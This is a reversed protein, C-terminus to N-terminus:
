DLNPVVMPRAGRTDIRIAGGFTAVLAAHLAPVDFAADAIVRGARLLLVRDAHLALPLDHLVTVVTHSRGLRRCLRALAVQHPPDLHTTPEDLLLVPAETALARALLVRQREGGSLAQLRRHMWAACETAAMARDVVAEDAPGAACFLGLHPLRGLMVTERATLDGSAEGGQALWAISRGREAAALFALPRGDLWVAGASAVQLGALTRLLTSKGAGNPGVIATWGPAFRCSVGDLVPQGGLAVSLSDARLLHQTTPVDAPAATSHITSM